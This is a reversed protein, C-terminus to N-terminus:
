VGMSKDRFGQCLSYSSCFDGSNGAVKEQEGHAVQTLSVATNVLKGGPRRACGEEHVGVSLVRCHLPATESRTRILRGLRGLRSYGGDCLGVCCLRTPLVTFVVLRTLCTWCTPVCTTWGFHSTNTNGNDLGVSGNSPYLMSSPSHSPARAACLRPALPPVPSYLIVIDFLTLFLVRPLRATCFSFYTLSLHRRFSPLPPPRGGLYLLFGRWPYIFPVDQGFRQFGLPRQFRGLGNSGSGEMGCGTMLRRELGLHAMVHATLMQCFFHKFLPSNYSISGCRSPACFRSGQGSLWPYHTFDNHLFLPRRRRSRGWPRRWGHDGRARWM